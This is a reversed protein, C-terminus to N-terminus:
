WEYVMLKIYTVARGLVKKLYSQTPKCTFGSESSLIYAIIQNDILYILTFWLFHLGM